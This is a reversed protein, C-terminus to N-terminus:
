KSSIRLSNWMSLTMKYKRYEASEGSNRVTNTVIFYGTKTNGWSFKNVRLSQHDHFWWRKTWNNDSLSIFLHIIWCTPFWQHLISQKESLQEILHIHPNFHSSTVVITFFKVQLTLNYTPKMVNPNAIKITASCNIKIQVTNITYGCKVQM